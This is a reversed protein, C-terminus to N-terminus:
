SWERRSKEREQSEFSSSLLRVKKLDKAGEATGVIKRKEDSKIQKQATHRATRVAVRANECLRAV